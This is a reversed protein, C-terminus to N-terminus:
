KAMKNRNLRAYYLLYFLSMIFLVVLFLIVSLACSEGMRGDMGFAKIYILYDVTMTSYGPGGSTLVYIIPFFGSFGFLLNIFVSYIITNKIIPIYILVVSKFLGVGDLIVLDKVNMDISALAGSYLITEWGFALWTVCLIIIIFSTRTDGFWYIPEKGLQKLLENMPGDYGFYLFFVKGVVVTSLIQPLYLISMFLKSGRKGYMLLVSLTAGILIVIPIYLFVIFTNRLMTWFEGNKLMNSYNKLGVFQNSYLGDWSYFSKILTQILPIGSCFLIVLIPIAIVINQKVSEMNRKKKKM